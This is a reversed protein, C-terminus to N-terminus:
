PIFTWGLAETPQSGDDLFSFDRDSLVRWAAVASLPLIGYLHPFRAGGRSEEWRLADSLAEARIAMLVLPGAAPYHRAATGAVQAAASFHVFGDRRDGDNGSYAGSERFASWEEPQCLRFIWADM